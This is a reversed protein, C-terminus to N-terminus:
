NICFHIFLYPFNIYKQQREGRPFTSQFSSYASPSRAFSTTGWAPVHISIKKGNPSRRTTATTGWAPVHISINTGRMAAPTIKTTGWAPVHISISVRVQYTYSRSRREGRPFTSQFQYYAWQVVRDRYTTGWAPVHISIQAKVSATTQKETTGWAPVHISIETSPSKQRAHKRREGRPFTSQFLNFRFYCWVVCFTTGWAPVHISIPSLSPLFLHFYPREGRPFTSQFISSYVPVFFAHFDNGM